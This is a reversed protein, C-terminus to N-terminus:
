RPAASQRLGLNDCIALTPVAQNMTYFHLGPAGGDLLRQCLASIVELGLAKIAERDDAYAELRLRLWRPIEAGCLASFRALQKYNTIPMIGPYIPIDIGLQQCSELFRFYADANFFYQSIASNAGADVKRKFHHLDREPSDAQPHFEPYAAIEIHFYDGCHARIFAVLDSAYRLEGAAHMGAPMDGRLAVIRQIGQKRYLDLIARVNERTSAICTLHPAVPVKDHHLEFVAEFTRNRTSGGAGYTVSCYHLPLAQWLTQRVRRLKVAAQDDSPPFFECSLLAQALEQMFKGTKYYPHQWQRVPRM